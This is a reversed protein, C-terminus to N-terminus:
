IRSNPFAVPVVPPVAFVSIVTPLKGAFGLRGALVLRAAPAAIISAALTNWAPIHKTAVEPVVIV